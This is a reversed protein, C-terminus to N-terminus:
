KLPTEKYIYIYTYKMSVHHATINHCVNNHICVIIISIIYINFDYASEILLYM